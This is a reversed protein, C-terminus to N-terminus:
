EADGCRRLSRQVPLQGAKVLMLVTKRSFQLLRIAFIV